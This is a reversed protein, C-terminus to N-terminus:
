VSPRAAALNVVVLGVVISAIGVLTAADPREGLIWWALIVTLVPVGLSSMGAVAVSVRRIVSVWLWWGLASALMAMYAMGMFFEVSFVIPRQPVFFAFPACFIAGLLMQWTIFNLLAPPRDRFLKKNVVVAVGWCVGGLLGPGLALANGFGKWPAIILFLGVAAFVFAVLHMRSLRDGLVPRAIAAAWFPMTYALLVVQGAGGMTLALQALCQFITTQLLAVAISPGLPPVEFRQGVSLQIALLMFFATVCRWFVLSFPGILDTMYKMVIWSFGWVLVTFAMLALALPDVSGRSKM